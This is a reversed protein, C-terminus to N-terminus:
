IYDAINDPIENIDIKFYTKMRNLLKIDTQDEMKVM